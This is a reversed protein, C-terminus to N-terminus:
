RGELEKVAREVGDIVDDKGEIVDDSPMQLGEVGACTSQLERIRRLLQFEGAYENADVWSMLDTAMGNVKSQDAQSLKDGQEVTAKLVDCLYKLVRDRLSSPRRGPITTVDNYSRAADGYMKRLQAHLDFCRSRVLEDNKTSIQTLLGVCRHYIELRETISTKPQGKLLSEVIFLINDTMVDVTPKEGQQPGQRRELQNAQSARREQPCIAQSDDDVTGAKASLGQREADRGKVDGECMTDSDRGSELEETKLELPVEPAANGEEDRGEAELRTTKEETDDHGETSDGGGSGSFVDPSDEERDGRSGSHVKQSEERAGGSGSLVEQSKEARDGGNGSLIGPSREERNEDSGNLVEQSKERNEQGKSDDEEEEDCSWFEEGEDKEELDEPFIGGEEEGKAVEAQVRTVEEAGQFNLCKVTIRESRGNRKDKAIFNTIGDGDVDFTVSLSAESRLHGSLNLEGLLNTDRPVQREGQYIQFGIKPLHDGGPADEHDERSTTEQARPEHDERSPEARPGEHDKRITTEQARPEHDQRSPEARPVEHDGRSTTQQARPGEHDERSRTEQARPEHDDRSTTEQARPEQDGRSPEARPEEHDERRSEARPGERDERSPTHSKLEPLKCDNNEGEDVEGEDVSSSPPEVNMLLHDDDGPAPVGSLAAAQVAAGYAVAEDANIRLNLSMGDFFDQLLKRIKPIRTSGGVLVVEDISFRELKADELTREVADMASQFLSACLENFRARSIRSTFDTGDYLSDIEVHAVSCGSLTRKAEESAIKLRMLALPNKSLDKKHKRKFESSFHKVLRNDFDEGGLHTDGATSLVKVENGTVALISVEFTGGGLDFILVKQERDLKNDLSYALAAATSENIIRKVDLGAIKGADKTAQRQSNNFYAPVTIVADTVTQGLYAEATKKMKTLIVASIEVPPVLKKEGKCQVRVKPEGMDDCVKFPWYEIDRKLEPDDFKRGIMRKTNFVTNEPNRGAQNKAVEGVLQESETFAVCSPTIRNGQDNAIIEVKGHQFVGVCSYTTGLDIGIAPASM